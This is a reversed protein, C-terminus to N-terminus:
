RMLWNITTKLLETRSNPTLGEMGFGMTVTRYKGADNFVIAGAEEKAFQAQVRQKPAQPAPRGQSNGFINSLVSNVVKQAVDQVLGRSDKTKQATRGKNQDVRISQATITGANAGATGWTAVVASGGVNSIVDPYFQNQASGAANLTYATNGLPGATVFKSTGSSDAVFRTKLVGQYFGSGGIDYGVDQGTVILRGGGALYQQLTQQDQGDLTNEYEEGTAWIVVDYRKLESLPIAGNQRNLVFAGGAAANAKIADRLNATVGAGKGGDDDVLLITPKKGGNNPPPNSPQPNNPLDKIFCGKGQGPVPDGFVSNSCDVGGQKNAYNYKGATGYAVQKEGQFNCKSGELACLAFGGPGTPQTPPQAPNPKPPPPPTPPTPPPPPPPPPSPNGGGVNVGLKGLAGPLNILGYGETNNRNGANSSSSYLANKVADIGTGPKASLMVAVAGAAIPAAQSTGSRSGYGGGPYSSTIDVGPAV